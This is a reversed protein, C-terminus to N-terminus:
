GCRASTTSSCRGSSTTSATTPSRSRAASRAAPTTSWSTSAATSTRAGREAMRDIDDIDSLDCRHVHATGGRAEIQTRTTRSSTRTARSWCRRDGGAEAVKLAAGPRHGVLRRHDARGQRRGHRALARDILLTRTSTASGTTGSSGAYDELPPCAIGSGELAAQPERCDFRTPFNVFTSCRARSASTRRAGRDRSRAAGAGAGDAGEARAAPHLRAARRQRAADIQPAHAASAFINLVDGVPQPEPDVLHFARATSARRPPRPPRHARRRLRGPRHQHRRGRHRGRCGRRCGHRMRQILKFFYYPGDIKDMEGTKSDGVVIARATSGGRCAQVGRARDERDRAQDPLVSPRPGRGRRVHGRSVRRRLPGAAAISSVHHFRGADIAEAFEVRARTGEINAVRQIEADASLDYIAALHFFHDVQGKLESSTTPPSASAAAPSTASSGSSASRTSAGAIRAARSSGAQSGERVLVYVTGERELLVEVLNPRHLRDRRHRLVAHEVNEGIAPFRTPGQVSVGM